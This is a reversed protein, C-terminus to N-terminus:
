ERLPRRRMLEFEAGRSIRALKLEAPDAQPESVPDIVVDWALGGGGRPEVPYCRAQPDVAGAIADLAPHVEAGLGALWSYDDDERLAPCDRVELRASRAGTVEVRFDVYSRPQFHPHMQFVKAVVRSGRTKSRWHRACATPVRDRGSGIWQRRGLETALPTTRANRQAICLMFARALLHTQM